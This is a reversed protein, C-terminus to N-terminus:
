LTSCNEEDKTNIYKLIEKKDRSNLVLSIFFEDGLFAMLDQLARLHASHDVACLSIVMSVPDNNRNGFNVPNKLVVLSLAIKYVGCDPRAHPMAIGPAIVIYPGMEKVADVMADVYRGEVAGNRELIGGGLRVAEEWDKVDADLEIYEEKLIDKLMPQAVGKSFEIDGGNLLESLGNVLKNYDLVNCSRKVVNVIHDIASQSGNIEKIHEKLLAIDADTLLANVTVSKVGEIAVPVTAIILDVHKNELIDKIQHLAATGAINVDFLQRIRASLLQATGLGTGCVILVDIKFKGFLRLKEIAAGFHMTLYGIEDDNCLIKAYGDICRLNEGVIEFLEGYNQKIRNLIPNKLTINHRARYIAPRLHEVLGDFLQKDGILDINIRNSVARILDFALIEIKIWDERENKRMISISSGLLHVTTYGIEGIPIKIMFHEELSEAMKKAVTFEKTNELLYLEEAPIVIDRGLQIRKVAIAIHMILNSYAEDTFTSDLEKEASKICDQIFALDIDPFLNGIKEDIIPNENTQMSSRFFELIKGTDVRKAILEIIAKRLHKEEGAVKIGHNPVSELKLGRESMWKKVVQLDKIITGRSVDLKKAIDDIKIFDREQLLDVLIINVRDEPSPIYYALNLKKLFELLAKKDNDSVQYNVGIHPKRTLQPLKKYRLFDDIEDLDYRVTRM